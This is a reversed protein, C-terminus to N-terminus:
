PHPVQQIISVPQGANLQQQAQAYFSDPLNNISVNNSSALHVGRSGAYAADVFIGGPLERQIDLNFQQVYGPSYNRYPAEFPNGGADFASINGNRPLPTNVNPGFPGNTPCNLTGSPSQPSSSGPTPERNTASLM